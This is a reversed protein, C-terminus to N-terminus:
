VLVGVAFVFAAFLFDIAGLSTSRDPGGFIAKFAGALGLMILLIKAVVIV